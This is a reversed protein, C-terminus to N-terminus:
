NSAVQLGNEEAFKLLDEWGENKWYDGIPKITKNETDIKVIYDEPHLDSIECDCDNMYFSDGRETDDMTESDVCEDWTINGNEEPVVNWWEKSSVYLVLQASSNLAMCNPCLFFIGSRLPQSKAKEKKVLQSVNWVM